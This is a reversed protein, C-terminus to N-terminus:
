ATEEEDDEENIIDHTLFTLTVILIQQGTEDYFIFSDDKFSVSAPVEGSFEWVAVTRLREDMVFPEPTTYIFFCGDDRILSAVKGSDSWCLSQRAPSERNDSLSNERSGQQNDFILDKPDVYIISGDVQEVIAQTVELRELPVFSASPFDYGPVKRMVKRDVWRHFWGDTKEGTSGIVRVKRLDKMRKENKKEIEILYPKDICGLGGNGLCYYGCVPCIEETADKPELSFWAATWDLIDQWTM